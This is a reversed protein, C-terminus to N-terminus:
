IKEDNHPFSSTRMAFVSLRAAIRKGIPWRTLLHNIVVKQTTVEEEAIVFVVLFFFFPNNQKESVSSSSFDIIFDDHSLCLELKVNVLFISVIHKM